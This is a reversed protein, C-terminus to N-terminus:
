WNKNIKNQIKYIYGIVGKKYDKRIKLELAEEPSWKLIRVRQNVVNYPIKFFKAAESLTSFVKNKFSFSSFSM